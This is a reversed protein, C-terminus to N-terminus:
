LGIGRKSVSSYRVNPYKKYYFLLQLHVYAELLQYKSPAFKLSLTKSFGSSDMSLNNLTPGIM